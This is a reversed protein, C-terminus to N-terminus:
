ALLEAIPKGEDTAHTPSQFQTTYVRDPPVGLTSLLTAMLDPTGFTPGDIETGRANTRGVVSGAKVGAGGLVVPTVQPFHDRGQEANIAPTRGFEGMWVILTEALLGSAALDDLLTAWPRDIEGCLKRTAAFNNAHTDWGGHQIEVFPVGCQLLRRGLLCAQGFDHDGYKARSGRGERELDLANLFPTEVLTEIQSILSDRLEVGGAAHHQRFDRDLERLFTLRRRRDKMSKLLALVRAPNDIAFAAHEAGLFAPGAASGGITVFQPFPHRGAPPRRDHAIMSGIAPRPFGPVFPYGTRLYYQARIHEGESSTLARLVALHHMRKAIEPLFESIRVGPASTAIAATEGGTEVGPKPDFTELQSPGGNMWLVLCRKARGAPTAALLPEAGLRALLGSVGGVAAALWARRTARLQPHSGACPNASPCRRSTQHTSVRM